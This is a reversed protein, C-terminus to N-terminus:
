FCKCLIHLGLFNRKKIMYYCQRSFHGIKKKDAMEFMWNWIGNNKLENFFVRVEEKEDTDYVKIMQKIYGVISRCHNATIASITEDDIDWKEYYEKEETYVDLLSWISKKCSFVNNKKTISESNNRYYIAIKDLFICRKTNQLIPLSQLADEALSVKSWKEYNTDIDVVSRRAVKQCMSTMYGGLLFQKYLINKDGNEFVQGDTFPLNSYFLTKEGDQSGYAIKCVVLDPQYKDIADHLYKLFGPMMYDDSDLHVFWDGRAERIGCRRTLLLGENKKHIVRITDPYKALYEDCVGRSSDTSGDDVLLIEVDKEEQNLVSDVSQRIYKEVNYVPIIVSFLM